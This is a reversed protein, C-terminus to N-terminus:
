EHWDVIKLEDLKEEAKAKGERDKRDKRNL